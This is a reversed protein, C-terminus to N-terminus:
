EKLHPLEPFDDLNVWYLLLSFPRNREEDKKKLHERLKWYREDIFHQALESPMMGKKDEDVRYQAEKYLLILGTLVDNITRDDKGKLSKLNEIVGKDAEISSYGEKWDIDRSRKRGPKKKRGRKKKTIIEGGKM